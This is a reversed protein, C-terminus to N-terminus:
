GRGADTGGDPPPQAFSCAGHGVDPILTLDCTAHDTADACDNNGDCEPTCFGLDGAFANAASAFACVAHTGGAISMTQDVWNCAGLEGLVCRTSCMAATVATASGFQLCTGGCNSTGATTDVTCHAGVKDGATATDMCVNFQLDCKRTAPCDVDQSCTPLCFDVGNGSVCAVDPRNQCKAVRDGATTGGFTCTKMCFAQPAGGMTPQYDFCVGGIAACPDVAGQACTMTCYGNAPGGTGAILKDTAKLCRLGTGCDTDASCALGLRDGSAGSDAAADGGSAGAASGADRGGGGGSGSTGAAGGRGGGDSPTQSGSSCAALCWAVLSAAIAGAVGRTRPNM